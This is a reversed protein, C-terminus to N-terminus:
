DILRVEDLYFPTRGPTRLSWGNVETLTLGDRPAGAPQRGDRRFASWPLTIQQWGSTDQFSATFREATDPAGYVRVHDILYEAPLELDEGLAGGFNGGLATNLLLTYPKDFPWGDPAVDEPTAEHFKVGDLYWEILGPQWETTITHFADPVPEDLMITDGFSEGGSYGPGHITAFVDFPERGVFEYFDIEGTTPWGVDRFDNGLSWFAPWIGTGAPAKVRAEIRGYRFEANGETVLRASTYECPGYWCPLDAAEPDEVEATRIVLNGDGDM